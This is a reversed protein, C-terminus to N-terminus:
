GGAGLMKAIADFAVGVGSQVAAVMAPLGLGLVFLGVMLKAPLALLFPQTQPVAKNVVGAAADIILTVAAVPAAIQLALLCVVGVFSSLTSAIAPLSSASLMPLRYSQAFAQFMMQHGNMLLLLVVGLMYKFQGVPTTTHGTMPSFVQAASLGLQLDLFAGAMQAANALLTVTSGILLGVLVEYGVAMILTILDPPVPGIMPKLIPVLAMSTVGCFAIRITVPAASTFFPSSLAMASLRVFVLLFAFMLAPELRM